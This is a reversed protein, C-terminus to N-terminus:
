ADSSDEQCHTRDLLDAPVRHRMAHAMAEDWSRGGLGPGDVHATCADGILYRPDDYPLPPPAILHAATAETALAAAGAIAGTTVIFTRRDIKM